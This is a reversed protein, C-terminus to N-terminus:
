KEKDSDLFFIIGNYLTGRKGHEASFTNNKSFLRFYWMGIQIISVRLLLYNHEQFTSDLGLKQVNEALIFFHLKNKM